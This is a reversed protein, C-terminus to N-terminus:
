ELFTSYYRSLEEKSRITKSDFIFKCGKKMIVSVGDPLKYRGDATLGKKDYSSKFLSRGTFGPDIPDNNTLPSGLFINYGNFLYDINV